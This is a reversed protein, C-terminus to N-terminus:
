FHIGARMRFLDREFNALDLRATNGVEAGWVQRNWALSLFGRDGIKAYLTPGVYIAEGTFEGFVLGDYARLYQANVGLYLNEMVRFSTALAFGLKSAREWETEGAELVREVEYLVNFAAFWRDKALETDFILKNEAGYKRGRLGTSEDHRQIVPELHLTVGVPSVGRRLLNWRIEGGIGNFALANNVDDFGAVGDIRHRVASLSLAANLTDTVGYALELKKGFAEYRGDRKGFRGIVEIMGIVAGKHHVDSGSVFGFLHETELGHDHGFHPNEPHRHQHDHVRGDNHHHPGRHTHAHRHKHNHTHAHPRVQAKPRAYRPSRVEATEQGFPETRAAAEGSLLVGTVLLAAGAVSFKVGAGM